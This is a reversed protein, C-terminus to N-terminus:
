GCCGGGDTHGCSLAGVFDQFASFTECNLSYHNWRGDRRVHVLNCECLIKMHHSLTPQTIEFRELLKCACMEGGSLLEVIQLRNADGLARCILATDMANM